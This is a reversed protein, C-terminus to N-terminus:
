LPAPKSRVKSATDERLVNSSATSCIASFILDPSRCMPSRSGDSRSSAGLHADAARGEASATRVSASSADEVHATALRAADEDAGLQNRALEHARALRDAHAPHGAHELRAAQELRAHSLQGGHVRALVVERRERSEDLALALEGGVVVEQAVLVEEELQVELEVQRHCAGRAVRGDHLQHAAHQPPQLDGAVHGDM